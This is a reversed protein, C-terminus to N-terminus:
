RDSRAGPIDSLARGFARASYGNSGRLRGRIERYYSRADPARDAFDELRSSLLRRIAM